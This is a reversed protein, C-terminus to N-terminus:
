SGPGGRRAGDGDHTRSGGARVQVDEAVRRDVVTDAVPDAFEDVSPESVEIQRFPLVVADSEALAGAVVGLVVREQRRHLFALAGAAVGRAAVPDGFGIGRSGVVAEGELERWALHGPRYDRGVSDSLGEDVGPLGVPQGDGSLRGVLEGVHQGGPVIPFAVVIRGPLCCVTPPPPEQWHWDVLVDDVSRKM